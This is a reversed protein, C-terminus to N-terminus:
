KNKNQLVSCVIFNILISYEKYFITSNKTAINTSMEIIVTITRYNM